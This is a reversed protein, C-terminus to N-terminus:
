LYLKMGEHSAQFGLTEYFEKARNRQKNTTLQIITAGKEQGWEIAEHIMKAGVGQGQYSPSVRVAEINLRISGSFTLSPMITLHVTGIINHKHSALMLLQNSDQDTLHYAKVYPALNDGVEREQGFEDDALLNVIAELDNENAKRFTIEQM